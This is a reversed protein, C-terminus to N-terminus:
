AAHDRHLPPCTGNVIGFLDGVERDTAFNDMGGLLHDWVRASHASSTDLRPPLAARGSESPSTGM